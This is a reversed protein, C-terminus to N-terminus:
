VRLIFVNLVEIVFYFLEGFFLLFRFGVELGGFDLRRFVVFGWVRWFAHDFLLILIECRCGELIEMLGNMGLLGEERIGIEM